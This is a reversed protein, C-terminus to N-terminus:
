LVNSHTNGILLGDNELSSYFIQAPTTYTTYPFPHVFMGVPSNRVHSICAPVVCSVCLSVPSLLQNDRFLCPERNRYCVLSLFFCPCLLMKEFNACPIPSGSAM